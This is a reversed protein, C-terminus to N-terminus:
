KLLDLAWELAQGKLVGLDKAITNLRAEFEPLCMSPRFCGQVGYRPAQIPTLKDRDSQPLQELLVIADQVVQAKPIGRTKAASNIVAKYENRIYPPRFGGIRLSNPNPSRKGEWKGETFTHGCTKCQWYRSVGDSHCGKSIVKGSKCKPCTIDLGPALAGYNGIRMKM